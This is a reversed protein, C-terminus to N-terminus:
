VHTIDQLLYKRMVRRGLRMTRMSNIMYAYALGLAGILSIFAVIASLTGMPKGDRKM